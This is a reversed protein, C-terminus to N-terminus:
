GCLRRLLAYPNVPVGDVEREFHVHAGTYRANGSNGVRAILEGAEVREGDSAVNASNHAYFYRDGNAARLYLSIGGNSSYTTDVVGAAIAYVPDGVDAMLDTGKHTRGGSRPAGWTDTFTASPVPCRGGFVKARTARRLRSPAPSPAAPKPAATTAAPSPSPKPTPHLERTRSARPLDFTREVPVLREPPVYAFALVDPAPGTGTAPAAALGAFAAGAVSLLLAPLATRPVPRRAARSRHRAHQVSRAGPTSSSPNSVLVNGSPRLGHAGGQGTM